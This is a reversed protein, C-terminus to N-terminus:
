LLDGGLLPLVILLLIGVFMLVLPVVLAGSAAGALRKARARREERIERGYDTLLDALGADGKQLNRSVTWAYRSATKEDCRRAFEAFAESPAAGNRVSECALKMEDGLPGQTREAIMRWTEIIPIGARQFLVTESIVAPMGSAIRRRRDAAKKRVSYFPAVLLAAAAAAAPLLLAPDDTLACVLFGAASAIMAGSLGCGLACFSVFDREIRGGCGPIFRYVAREPRLRSFLGLIFAGAPILISPRVGAEVAIGATDRIRAAGLLAFLAWLGFFLSSLATMVTVFLDM